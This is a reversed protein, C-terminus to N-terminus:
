RPIEEIAPSREAGQTRVDPQYRAAFPFIALGEATPRGLRLAVLLDVVDTRLTDLSQGYV